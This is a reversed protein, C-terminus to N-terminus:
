PLRLGLGLTVQGVVDPVDFVTTTGLVFRDRVVPALLAASADIVLPGIWSVDFRGDLGVAGWPRAKSQQNTTDSGSALIAGAEGAVCPRLAARASFVRVVLPCGEAFGSVLAFTATGDPGPFSRPLGGVFAVRFSPALSFPPLGVPVLAAGAFVALGFLPAPAVGFAAFGDASAEFTWRAHGRSPIGGGAPAESPLVPAISRPSPPPAVAPPPAPSVPPPPAPPPAPVTLAPAASSASASASASASSGSSDAPAASSPAEPEGISDGEIALAAVLAVADTAQRCDPARIVRQATHGDPKVLVLRGRAGDPALEIEARLHRAREGPAGTAARFQSTRAEVRRQFEAADPCGPPGVFELAVPLPEDADVASAHAWAASALAAAALRALRARARM